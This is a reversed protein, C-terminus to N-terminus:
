GEILNSSGMSLHSFSFRALTLMTKKLFRYARLVRKIVSSYVERQLSDHDALDEAPLYAQAM